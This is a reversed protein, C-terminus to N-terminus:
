HTAGVLMNLLKLLALESSHNVMLVVLHAGIVCSGEGRSRRAAGDGEEQKPPPLALSKSPHHQPLRGIAQRRYSSRPEVCMCTDANPIIPRTLNGSFETAALQSTRGESFAERLMKDGRGGLRMAFTEPGATPGRKLM